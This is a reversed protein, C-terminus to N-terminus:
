APGGASGRSRARNHPGCLRRLNALVTLGGQTYPEVHDYQLLVAAACGPRACTPHREDLVRRQRRTPSRRRPSADIPRRAADYLLLSVFADDLLGAVAHDSLPTGDALRCPEDGRVHIVVEATVAGGGSTATRVLADARQQRLSAGAPARAAMVERDVVAIVAAAEEPPLRATIAVMGDPETRWSVSRERHHRRDIEDPDEHRRSWTAIAGGLRAAPTFRALEVLAHVNADSLHPVLVRAKAYSVDGDAMAADLVPHARMARAVRVQARATVVEIGCVDALWAACSLAGRHAWAGRADLEGVLLLLEYTGAALRSALAVITAELQDAPVSGLDAPDGSQRHTAGEDDEHM